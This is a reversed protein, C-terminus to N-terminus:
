KYTCNQIQENYNFKISYFELLQLACAVRFKSHIEIFHHQLNLDKVDKCHQINEHTSGPMSKAGSSIFRSVIMM